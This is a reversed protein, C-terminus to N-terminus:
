SRSASAPKMRIAAEMTSKMENANEKVSKMELISYARGQGCNYLEYSTKQYEIVRDIIDVLDDIYVLDRRAKGDGWIELTDTAACVKTIMSALVHAKDPDTKDHPGFINSNRIVTFKCKGLRSYFDCLRESYVKMSGVGFYSSYIPEEIKWDSEKQPTEKPQMMVSCSMFICHKVNFTHCAEFIFSNMATNDTVHLFPREIVDKSGTTVAACHIVIDPRTLNFLSKVDSRLTLDAQIYQCKKDYDPVEKHWSSYVDFNENEKFFQILNYGIFGNAGGLILIKTKM